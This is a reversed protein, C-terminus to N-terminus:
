LKAPLIIEFKALWELATTCNQQDVLTSGHIMLKNFLFFLRQIGYLLKNFPASRTANM